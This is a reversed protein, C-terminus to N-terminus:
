YNSGAGAGGFHGGGFQTSVEEQGTSQGFSEGIIFGELNKFTHNRDTIEHYIFGNWGHKLKNIMWYSIVVLLGGSFLLTYELPMIQFYFKITLLSFASSVLGIRLFDIHKNKIGIWLYLLPILLTFSWFMVQLGNSWQVNGALEHVVYYNGSCYFGCLTCVAMTNFLPKLIFSPTSLSKVSAIKYLVANTTMLIFPLALPVTNIMTFYILVMLAVIASIIALRDYFRIAVYTCLLVAVASLLIVSDLFLSIGSCFLIMSIMMLANDVGSNFHKKQKTFYELFTYCILGFGIFFLQYSGSVNLLLFSFALTAGCILITLFALAIQMFLHPMVLDVPLKAKLLRGNEKSIYGKAVMKDVERHHYLNQLTTSKYVSM